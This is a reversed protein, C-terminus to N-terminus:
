KVVHEPRGFGLIATHIAPHSLAFEIARELMASGTEQRLVEAQALDSEYLALPFYPTKLTHASPPSGLIAGAALVRIAMVGMQREACDVLINGYNRDTFDAPMSRGASPNLMNYPLQITDFAGSRIVERMASAQGTGTLGIFQTLGQEQIRHMADLVGDTALVDSASLSAPEDGRRDTLGNHLQLLTVRDRKLRVLSAAVSRQVQSSIDESSPTDIRVKTAIHLQEARPDGLESLAEGLNAESAGNGYGAATDIWNIGVELVRRLTALQLQRDSGTMLGSVPGAGFAIRSVHLRTRGLLATQMSIPTPFTKLVSHVDVVVGVGGAVIRYHRM